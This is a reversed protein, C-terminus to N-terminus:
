MQVSTHILNTIVCKWEWDVTVLSLCAHNKQSKRISLCIKRINLLVFCVLDTMAQKCFVALSLATISNTLDVTGFEGMNQDLYLKDCVYM